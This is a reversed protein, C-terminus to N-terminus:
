SGPTSSPRASAFAEDSSDRAQATLSRRQKRARARMERAEPRSTRQRGAQRAGSASQRQQPSTESLARTSRAPTSYRGHEHQLIARGRKAETGPTGSETSHMMGYEAFVRIQHSGPELGELAPPPELGRSNFKPLLVSERPSSRGYPLWTGNCPTCSNKCLGRQSYPKPSVSKRVTHPLPFLLSNPWQTLSAQHIRSCHAHPESRGAQM